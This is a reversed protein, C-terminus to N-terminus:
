GMLQGLYFGLEKNGKYKVGHLLHQMLSEKTFYYQATANQVPLRGTFITDIPNHAHLHFHTQPLAELCHLCLLHEKPLVDNGCGACVHPFALHLLAEKINQLLM